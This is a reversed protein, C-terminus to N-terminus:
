RSSQSTKKGGFIKLFFCLINAAFLLLIVVFLLCKMCQENRKISKVHGEARGHEVAIEQQYNLAQNIKQTQQELNQKGDELQGRTDKMLHLTDLLM